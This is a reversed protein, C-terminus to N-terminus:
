FILQLIFIIVILTLITGILGMAVERCSTSRLESDLLGSPTASVYRECLGTLPRAVAPLAQCTAGTAVAVDRRLAVTARSSRVRRSEQARPGGSFGAERDDVRRRARHLDAVELREAVDAGVLGPGDDERQRHVEQTCEEARAALIGACRATGDNRDRRGAM